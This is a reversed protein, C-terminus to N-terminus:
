SPHNNFWRRVLYGRIVSIIAFLIAIEINKIGTVDVNLLPYIFLSAIYNFLFSFVANSSSEIFSSKKSQM